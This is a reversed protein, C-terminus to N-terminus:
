QLAGRATIPILEEVTGGRVGYFRDHLLTTLDSYGPRLLVKDGIHLDHSRPGLELTLHEASFRGIAADPLGRGAARGIVHPPHVEPSLSKRGCDLVARELRPRSVVTALLALAPTLGRVGCAATYYPDAFIGGGAQLETVGPVDATIQYSGTGGASVIPCPVGEAACLDRVRTLLGMATEIQTRKVAPDPETLLHGEYGVLGSFAIGPLRAVARVLEIADPGPRVGTRNLGLNVEVLVRCRVGQAQCVRSLAEAQAYHDCCVLPDASRCLAAVRQLKIEGVVCHAILIDRVGAAAFVEAESTKAVTVGIAGAALQRQAIAPSKHGKAHPRWLKGRTTIWGAMAAINADLADLDLVLAPTDIDALASPRPM